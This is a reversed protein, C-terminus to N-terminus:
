LCVQAKRWLGSKGGSKEVLQVEKISIGKDVGKCMDYITCCAISVSVLAEMEVGTRGECEARSEVIISKNWDDLTFGAIQAVTLVDGKQMSNSKILDYAAEGLMVKGRAIAYRCTVAKSNVSVMCAKGQQDTHTLKPLEDAPATETSYPRPTIYKLLNPQLLTLPINAKQSKLSHHLSSSTHPQLRQHPPFPWIKTVSLMDINAAHQKKKRKVAATIVELLQEDSAGERIIDRLNVEANGFLCVKMNGDATIRLRNCTDCFHDSMSTIFGFRGKFGRIAYAKSTDNPEDSLKYLEPYRARITQLMDRYPVFKDKNWKNGGFPMYEIFRVYVPWEKTMEVFPLVEMDNVKKMVVANLKLSPVNLRIAAEISEIVHDWGRRRTMLEFQFKDLTDLSVNLSNLGNKVLDPLKRKLAIGNTTMAITQLGLPRLENLGAVINLLDARVTPEGGTLRIKTVGEQVFLRALKLIEFASLLQPKPTLPVGEAPMCYTCRLNCRETLSIRLYTHHRNFVDTLHPSLYPRTDDIAEIKAKATQRKSATITEPAGPLAATATSVYRPLLITCALRRAGKSSSIAWEYAISEVLANSNLREVAKGDIHAHPIHVPVVLVPISSVPMDVIEQFVRQIIKLGEDLEEETICLPPALRIITQHTPKCLLGYHKLLLSIHWATKDSRSEDIVIANLLGRGRVTAILPSNMAVVAERFKRGMRDANEIMGEDRLVELASIAVASALPNGGYTSGHEGPQICLMIDKNALVASVPYMGGSLAKGLILMDPKVNEHDIALLKGTRGLGTQIEDAIFLVNHKKCLEYAKRLYGDSPIVIGAEGQIPEILFAAVNKGHVKLAADLDDLSDYRIARGSVPCSSGINPVFPGFNTTADPDTSMSIISITRGHFNNSVSLIIAKGSPIQKKTYGWKRALKLATEVGEAGTNMPLVMDFGFYETVFKAYRGFVDNYFARSSLAVKGAQDVLAQVIKPHCHGQNVASYASLFDLYKKGEPDWVYVGQARAFVMPIPHYNHAAYKHELEIAEASSINSVIDSQTQIAQRATVKLAGADSTRNGLTSAAAIAESGNTVVTMAPHPNETSRM